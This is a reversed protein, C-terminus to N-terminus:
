FWLRGTKLGVSWWLVASSARCSVEQHEWILPALPFNGGAWSGLKSSFFSNMRMGADCEARLGTELCYCKGGVIVDWGHFSGSILYFYKPFSFATTHIKITPRIFWFWKVECLKNRRGYIMIPCLSFHIMHKNDPLYQNPCATNDGFHLRWSFHQKSIKVDTWPYLWGATLIIAISNNTSVSQM